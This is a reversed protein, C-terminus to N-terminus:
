AAARAALRRPSLLLIEGECWPEARLAPAVATTKGAGPPAVLVANPRERLAALLAPLVAEIPLASLGRAGAAIARAAGLTRADDGRGRGAREGPRALHRRGAAAHL